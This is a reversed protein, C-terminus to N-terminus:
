ERRLLRINMAVRLFQHKTCSGKSSKGSICALDDSLSSIQTPVASRQALAPTQHERTREESGCRLLVVLMTLYEFRSM